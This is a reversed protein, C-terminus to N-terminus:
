ALQLLRGERPKLADGGPFTLSYGPNHCSQRVRSRTGDIYAPRWSRAPMASPQHLTSSRWGNGTGQTAGHLAEAPGQRHQAARLPQEERRCRQGVKPIGQDTPSLVLAQRKLRRLHHPQSYSAFPGPGVCLSEAQRPVRMSSSRPQAPHRHVDAM